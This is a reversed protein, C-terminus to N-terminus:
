EMRMLRLTELSVLSTSAEEVSFELEQPYIGKSDRLGELWTVLSPLPLHDGSVSVATKSESKVTVNLGADKASQRVREDLPKNDQVVAIIGTALSHEDLWAKENQIKKLAQQQSVIAGSLPGAVGYVAFVLCCALALAKLLTQERQSKNSWWAKM